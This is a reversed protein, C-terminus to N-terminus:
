IVPESSTRSVKWPKIARPPFALGFDSRDLTLNKSYAPDDAIYDGWKALMFEKEGAFRKAKEPSTEYGRTASKYHYLEAHPTWVNRLGARLLKLCFDVDNYAVSLHVEDLGGVSDYNAKTVILCAGTVASFDQTLSARGNYGLAHRYIAAHAHAALGGLGMVVGAHQVTGNPYLLKAGVAGTGPRLALAVMRSLWDRSIVEIDNNVLAIVSGKAQAVANNNLASYNFPRDDRLVRVGSKGALEAFLGLLEQEDSGNDVLIIEYNPYDTKAVISRICREVFKRANRTPIIISVLPPDDPLAYDIRFAHGILHAKADVSSRQFHEDLAREGAIMAFPKESSALATSGPIARWHYLVHPIHCIDEPAIREICRLALDYDQAGEFGARFGGVEAILGADYVALHTILNHSLFLDPNWDCKFYPNHRLGQPDIKDEDSYILRANPARNIADVVCYLSHPRLRDDHDLLAIWAGRALALASNSAKSINGNAERFVVRIRDDKAAYEELVRRVGPDTSHDDAICLEWNGYTQERVSDIAERLFQEPTNYVPMVVSILPRVPFAREGDRMAELDRPGITDYLAVWREYDLGGSQKKAATVLAAFAGRLGGQRMSRVVYAAARSISQRDKLHRAALARAMIAYSEARSLRRLRARAVPLRDLRSGPSFRLRCTAHQLRVRAVTRGSQARLEIRDDGGRQNDDDLYLSWDSAADPTPAELILRFRGAFAPGPWVLEFQPEGEATKREAQGAPPLRKLLLDRGFYFSTRYFIDLLRSTFGRSM